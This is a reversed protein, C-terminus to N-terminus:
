ANSVEALRSLLDKAAGSDIAEGARRACAEPTEGESAALLAAAANLVVLDRPVGARGALVQRILEASEVPGDVLADTHPAASLGFDAASWTFESPEGGGVATVRTKDALSVEDLGDEGHVVLARETGLMSLAQALAPRLWARGVGLLQYPASAPNCLPGLWNFITPGDIKKRV